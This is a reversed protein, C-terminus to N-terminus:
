SGTQENERKEVDVFCFQCVATSEKGWCELCLSQGCHPCKKEEQNTDQCVDCM